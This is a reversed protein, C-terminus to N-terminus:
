REKISRALWVTHGGCHPDEATFTVVSFGSAALQMRYEVPDLSGHYLPDGGYAGIAEGHRPGSSFLLPAGPSAHAGFIPIMRRQDDPNLHFFSDWAIIGDFFKQLRLTRMDHVAWKQSPLRQSCLAIMTPSSDIGTVAFGADVLYRAIPEAGGCGIDLIRGSPRTLAIFRDVWDKEVFRGRRRDADWERAHREYLAVVGDSASTM